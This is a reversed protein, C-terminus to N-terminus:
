PCAWVPTNGANPTLIELCSPAPRHASVIQRYEARAPQENTLVQATPAKIRATHKNWEAYSLSPMHCLLLLLCVRSM